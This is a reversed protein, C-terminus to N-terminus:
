KLSRRSARCSAPIVGNRHLVMYNVSSPLIISKLANCFEFAYKGITAISNPIIVSTLANCDYFAEEGISVVGNPITVSTLDKCKYFTKESIGTVPYLQGQYEVTQPIVINGSYSNEPSWTSKNAVYLETKNKNWQYYITAGDDNVVSIDYYAFVNTGLMSIFATFFFVLKFQKM